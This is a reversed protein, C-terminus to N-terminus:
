HRRTEVMDGSQIRRPSESVPIEVDEFEVPIGVCSLAHPADCVHFHLHPETSNGSSGVEAIPQGAKVSDGNAVKLSGPRLHGYVSYVGDAHRVILHNGPIAGIDGALLVSQNELLRQQYAALAEGPRRMADANDPLTGLAAVVEGDAAALVPKGYAYYDTVRSGDNAHTGGSAGFQVFDFAFEEPVAWRHHSHLTSGAGAQWRGTLPFRFKGPASGYNVTLQMEADPAHGAFDVRIRVQEPKGSFALVQVPIYLVQGPSLEASAALQGQAGLLTEPSFQFGLTKFLGSAQLAQGTKVAHTVDAAHLTKALVVDGGRLLEFRLGDIRLPADGTNHVATNHIVVSHLQRAAELEYAWVQGTPYARLEAQVAAQSAASALLLAAALFKM